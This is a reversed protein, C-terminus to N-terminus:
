NRKKKKKMEKTFYLKRKKAKKETAHIYKTPKKKKNTTQKPQLKQAQCELLMNLNEKTKRNM